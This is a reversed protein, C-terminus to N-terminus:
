EKEEKYLRNKMSQPVGLDDLKKEAYELSIRGEHYQNIIGDGAIVWAPIVNSFSM